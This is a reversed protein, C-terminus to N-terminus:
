RQLLKARVLTPGSGSVLRKVRIFTLRDDEPSWQLGGARWCVFPHPGLAAVTADLLKSCADRIDTRLKAALTSVVREPPDRGYVHLASLFLDVPLKMRSALNVPRRDPATLTLEVGLSQRAPDIKSVPRQIAARFRVWLEARDEVMEVDHSEAVLMEPQDPPLDATRYEVYYQPTFDIGSPPAPMRELKEFRIEQSGRTRFILSGRLNYFLLNEIDAATGNTLDLCRAFLVPSPELGALARLLSKRLTEKEGVCKNFPLRWAAWAALRCNGPQILWGNGAEPKLDDGGCTAMNM